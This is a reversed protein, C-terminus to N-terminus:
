KTNHWSHIMMQGVGSHEFLPHGEQLRPDTEPRGQVVHAMARENAAKQEDQAATSHGSEILMRAVGSHEYDPHGAQLRPDDAYRKALSPAVGADTYMKHAKEYLDTRAEHNPRHM